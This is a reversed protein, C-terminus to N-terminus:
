QQKVAATFCCNFFFVTIDKIEKEPLNGGGATGSLAGASINLLLNPVRLLLNPVRLM